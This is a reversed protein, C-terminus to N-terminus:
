ERGDPGYRGIYILPARGHYTHLRAAIEAAQPITVTGGAVSNPEIDIALVPIEGPVAMIHAVQAAPPSSDCFHYAGVLPGTHTAQACRKVFRPDIWTAGQTAKLIVAEIGGAKAATFDVTAQWHSLDIIADLM